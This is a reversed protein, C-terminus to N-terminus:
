SRLSRCDGVTVLREPDMTCRKDVTCGAYAARVYYHAHMIQGCNLRLCHLQLRRALQGDERPFGWRSWVPRAPNDSTNAAAWNLAALEIRRSCLDLM